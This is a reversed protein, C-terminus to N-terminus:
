INKKIETNYSDDVTAKRSKVIFFGSIMNYNLRSYNFNSKIPNLIIDHNADHILPGGNSWGRQHAWIWKPKIKKMIEIQHITKQKMNKKFLKENDLFTKWSIRRLFHFDQSTNNKGTALMACMIHTNKGTNKEIDTKKIRKVFLPNDCLIRDIFSKNDTLDIRKNKYKLCKSGPTSKMPREAYGGKGIRPALAFVYCNAKVGNPIKWAIPHINM